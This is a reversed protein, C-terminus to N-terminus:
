WERAGDEIAEYWDAGLDRRRLIPAAPDGEDPTWDAMRALAQEAYEREVGARDAIIWAPQAIVERLLTAILKADPTM